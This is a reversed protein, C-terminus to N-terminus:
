KARIKCCRLQKNPFLQKSVYLKTKTQFAAIKESLEKGSLKLVCKNLSKGSFNETNKTFDFCSCIKSFLCPMETCGFEERFLGPEKQDHTKHKDFFRRSFVNGVADDTFGGICDKLQM